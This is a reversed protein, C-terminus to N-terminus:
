LWFCTSVNKWTCGLKYPVGNWLYVQPLNKQWFCDGWGRKQWFTYITGKVSLNGINLSCSVFM